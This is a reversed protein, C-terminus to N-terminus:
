VLNAIAWEIWQIADVSAPPRLSVYPPPPLPPGSPPCTFQYHIEPHIPWRMVDPACHFHLSWGCSWRIGASWYQITDDASGGFRFALIAGSKFDIADAAAMKDVRGDGCAVFWDGKKTPNYQVGKAPRKVGTAAALLREIKRKHGYGHGRMCKSM